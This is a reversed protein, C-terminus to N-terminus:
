LCPKEKVPVNQLWPLLWTDVDDSHNQDSSCLKLLDDGNIVRLLNLAHFSAEKQTFSLLSQPCVEPAGM